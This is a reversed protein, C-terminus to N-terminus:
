KSSAKKYPERKKPAEVPLLDVIDAVKWLKSTVGAAM